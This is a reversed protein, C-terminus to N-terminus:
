IVKLTIHLNKIVKKKFIKINNFSYFNYLNEAKYNIDIKKSTNLLYNNFM